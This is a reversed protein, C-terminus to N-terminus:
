SAPNLICPVPGGVRGLESVRIGQTPQIPGVDQM